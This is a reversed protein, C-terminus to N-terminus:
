VNKLAKQLQGYTKYNGLSLNEELTHSKNCIVTHNFTKCHFVYGSPYWGDNWKSPTVGFKNRIYQGVACHRFTPLDNKDFNRIKTEPNRSNVFDKFDRFSLKKTIGEITVQM